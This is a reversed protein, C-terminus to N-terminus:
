EAALFIAVMDDESAPRLLRMGENHPGPARWQGGAPHRRCRGPDARRGTIEQDAESIGRLLHRYFPQADAGSSDGIQWYAAARGADRGLNEADDAISVAPAAPQPHRAHWASWFEEDRDAPAIFVDGGSGSPCTRHDLRPASLMREIEGGTAERYRKRTYSGYLLVHM